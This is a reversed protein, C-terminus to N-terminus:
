EDNELSSEYDVLLCRWAIPDVEKLVTSPSYKMGFREIPPHTDDALDSFMEEIEQKTYKM